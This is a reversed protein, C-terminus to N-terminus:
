RTMASSRMDEAGRTCEGGGNAKELEEALLVEFDPNELLRPIRSKRRRRLRCKCRSPAFRWIQSIMRWIQLDTSGLLRGAREVAM